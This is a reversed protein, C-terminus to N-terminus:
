PRRGAFGVQGFSVGRSEEVSDMEQHSLTMSSDKGVTRVTPPRGVVRFREEKTRKKKTSKGKQVGPDRNVTCTKSRQRKNQIGPHSQIMSVM